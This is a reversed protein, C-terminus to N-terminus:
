LLLGDIVGYYAPKPEFDADFPCADGEGPFSAPVWSYKDTWDWVTIGICGEVERCARVITEFDRRQQELGEEVPPLVGFRVDLETIAVEVGLAAFEALNRKVEALSPVQGVTEHAQVGVGHLPVGSAKLDRVLVKLASAKPGPGTTNYENIYLKAHPDAQRAAHLALPIYSTNLTNYWITERWTGDDNFPENIVDWSYRCASTMQGAWHRVINFCHEQVVQALEPGTWTTNTVWAPIDNHWVCNHGRMLKGGQQALAVVQDGMDWTFVGREPETYNKRVFILTWKMAKAPTLQGFMALDDLVAVYASDNLQYNNTATGFYLKGASRAVANFGSRPPHAAALLVPVIFVISICVKIVVM